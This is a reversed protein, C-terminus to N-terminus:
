EYTLHIAGTALPTVGPELEETSYTLKLLQTVEAKGNWNNIDTQQINKVHQPVTPDTEEVVIEEPLNDLKQKDENTFDNTSLGKGTVKDVKKDLQDKTVYNEPISKIFGEDNELDSLKTPMEINEVAIKLDEIATNLQEIDAQTAYVLSNNIIATIEEIDSIYLEGNILKAAVNDSTNSAIYDATEGSNTYFMLIDENTDPDKAYIGIERLYFGTTINKTELDFGIVLKKTTGTGTVTLRTISEERVPSVLQKLERISGTYYGDGLVFKSFKLTKGIQAKYQLDLGSDTIKFSNFNAM